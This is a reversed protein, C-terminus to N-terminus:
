LQSEQKLIEAKIFFKPKKFCNTKKSEKTLYLM